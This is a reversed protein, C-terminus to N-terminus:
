HSPAAWQEGWGRHLDRIFARWDEAKRTAPYPQPAVPADATWVIQFEGNDGIRGIRPTKYLHQSTADVRVAGEPAELRQSRLAPIVLRPEVAGAEIAAQTWLKVGVYAAEMPDTVHRQPGYKEHFAKLFAANEPSEISQFYNWAAYDGAVSAIDLRRLEEEHVSFSVTPVDAASVGATRLETFLAINSDGNVLNLLVDPQAAAIAAVTSAVDRSGLPLYEEGVITAGIGPAADKIIEGAARPFVYDSGVIFFTKAGLSETAWRVAPLIQQNPAAGTYVVNPSEELGEYQVPYILLHDREEFLPVVTKRSASTWCGFVVAVQEDDILRTAEKLFTQPDSRGDAVVAEVPRGLVGGAANVEAIALLVTDVVPSESASMTGTLSHLVGVKIPEGAPAAVVGDSRDTASAAVSGVGDDAAANSTQPGDDTERNKWVFTALSALLIVGTIAALVAAVQVPWPRVTPSPPRQIVVSSDTTNVSAPAARLGTGDAASLGLTTRVASRGGSFSALAAELDRAMEAASQYRDDPNKATARRIIDACPDPVLPNWVRPDLPEGHCHAFMVQVTSGSTAYPETGTLLYYYTAGLSYIDSRADVPRAECQEPSMYYPTGVVHGTRTVGHDALEEKALGFDCVKVAGEPSRLLNAPKIDRHVLGTAHAATLGRAAELTARTAASPSLQGIRRVEEALSGGTVLEMVLFQTGDQESVDYLGVVNPHNLRGASKAESLFRHLATADQALDPPLVKVAVDREIVEDRGRYVVGMGGGGLLGTLRYHGLTRGIWQHGGGLKGPPSVTDGPAGILTREDSSGVQPDSNSPSPANM